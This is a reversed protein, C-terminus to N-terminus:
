SSSALFKKKGGQLSCPQADGHAISGTFVLDWSFPFLLPVRGSTPRSVVDLALHEALSSPNSQTVKYIGGRRKKRGTCLTTKPFVVPLSIPKPSLRLDGHLHTAPPVEADHQGKDAVRGKPWLCPSFPSGRPAFLHLSCPLVPEFCSCYAGPCSFQLRM